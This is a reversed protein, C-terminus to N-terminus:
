LNGMLIYSFSYRNMIAKECRVDLRTTEQPTPVKVIDETDSSINSVASTTALNDIRVLKNPSSKRRRNCMTVNSPTRVSFPATMFRCASALLGEKKPAADPTSRVDSQEVFALENLQIYFDSNAFYTDNDIKKGVIHRLGTDTIQFLSGLCHIISNPPIELNNEDVLTKDMSLMAKKVKTNTSM